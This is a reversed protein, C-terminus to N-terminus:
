PKETKKPYSQPFGTSHMSNPRTNLIEASQWPVEREVIVRIDHCDAAAQVAGRIVLIGVDARM